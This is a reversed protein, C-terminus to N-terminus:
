KTFKKCTSKLEEFLECYKTKDNLIEPHLRSFVLFSNHAFLQRKYRRENKYIIFDVDGVKVSLFSDPYDERAYGGMDGLVKERYAEPLTTLLVLRDEDAPKAVGYTSSGALVFNERYQM